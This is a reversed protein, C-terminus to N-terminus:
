SYFPMYQFSTQEHVYVAACVITWQSAGKHMRAKICTSMGYAGIKRLIHEFNSKLPVKIAKLSFCPKQLNCFLLKTDVAM